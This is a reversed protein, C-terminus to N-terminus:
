FFRSFQNSIPLIKKLLTDEAKQVQQEGFLVHKDGQNVALENEM